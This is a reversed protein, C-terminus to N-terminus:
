TATREGSSLPICLLSRVGASEDAREQAAEAPAGGREPDPDSAARWADTPWSPPRRRRAFREGPDSAPGCWQLRRVGSDPSRLTIMWIRDAGSVAALDALSHRVEDDVAEAPLAPLPPSGAIRTELDLQHRLADQSRQRETDRLVAVPPRAGGAISFMATAELTVWSGDRHRGRYISTGAGRRRGGLMSRILSPHDAPHVFDAFRLRPLEERAYGMLETFSPSAYLFRGDASFECIPDKAHEALARFREESERLALDSRMRELASTFLDAVVRLWTIEHPSWSKESRICHFGLLGVLRDGIHVPVSLYSRV